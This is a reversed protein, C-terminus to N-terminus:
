DPYSGGGRTFVPDLSPNMLSVNKVFVLLPLSAIFRPKGGFVQCCSSLGRMLAQDLTALGEMCWNGRTFAKLIPPLDGDVAVRCAFRLHLLSLTAFKPASPAPFPVAASVGDVVVGQLAATFAHLASDSLGLDALGTALPPQM